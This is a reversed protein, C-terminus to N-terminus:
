VLVDYIEVIEGQKNHMVFRGIGPDFGSIGMYSAFATGFVELEKITCNVENPGDESCPDWSHHICRLLISKRDFNRRSMVSFFLGIHRGRIESDPGIAVQTVSPVLSNNHPIQVAVLGGLVPCVVTAATASLHLSSYINGVLTHPIVQLPITHLPAWRSGATIPASPIPYIRTAEKSIVAIREYPLMYCGHKFDCDISRCLQLLFLPRVVPYVESGLNVTIPSIKDPSTTQSLPFVHMVLFRQGLYDGTSTCRRLQIMYRNDLTLGNAAGPFTGDISQILQPVLRADMAHGVLRLQYIHM